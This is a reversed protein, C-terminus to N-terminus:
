SEEKRKRKKGTNRAGYKDIEKKPLTYLDNKKIMCDTLYINYRNKRRKKGMKIFNTIFSASFRNVEVYRRCPM